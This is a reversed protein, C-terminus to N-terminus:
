NIALPGVTVSVKAMDDFGNSTIGLGCCIVLLSNQDAENCTMMTPHLVKAMSMSTDSARPLYEAASLSILFYQTSCATVACSSVGLLTSMWEFGGGVRSKPDAGLCSWVLSVIGVPNSTFWDAGVGFVCFGSTWFMCLTAYRGPSSIWM